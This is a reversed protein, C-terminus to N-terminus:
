SFTDVVDQFLIGAYYGVLLLPLYKIENLLSFIGFKIKYFYIIPIPSLWAAVVVWVAGELGYEQYGWGILFLIIAAKVGHTLAAVFSNGMSNLTSVAVEYRGTFVTLALLSFITGAYSYEDSYLLDIVGQGGTFLFASLFLAPIDLIKRFKYYVKKLRGPDERYVESTAPFAVSYVVRNMLLRVSNVLLFAIFYLGMTAADIYGGLIIKDGHISLITFLSSVMIWKGFHFIESFYKGNFQIRNKIGSLANHSMYLRIVNQVIVGTALVWISPYLWAFIVMYILAILQGVLEVAVLPKLNIKRNATAVNTSEFGKLVASFSAIFIVFPLEPYAYTTSRELYGHDVAYMLAFSIGIAIFWLIFGRIIMLVWITNLFDEKDGNKSRVVNVKLGIDSMMTLSSNIIQIIAMVGFYEPILLRTLILNSSLRLVHSGMQTVIAWLGGSLIRQRFTKSM